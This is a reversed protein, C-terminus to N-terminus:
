LLDAGLEAIESRETKELEIHAYLNEGKFKKIINSFGSSYKDLTLKDIQSLDGTFVIKSGHGVRTIITKVELPSLNQAEDVLIFQNQLSRGRIYSLPAVEFLNNDEILKQLKTNTKSKGNKGGNISSVIELNDIIPTIWPAMKEEIGGPLFGIDAGVPIVPRTIVIKEYKNERIIKQLGVAISLITKGSGAKGSITVLKINDDLLANLAYTQEINLGKIGLALPKSDVRFITQDKYQGIFPQNNGDEDEFRLFENNSLGDNCLMPISADKHKLMQGIELGNLIMKSYGLYNPIAHDIDYDSSNIELADAKIRLNVDKTILVIPNKKNEKSLSLVTSLLKNDVSKIDLMINEPSNNIDIFPIVFLKGDKIEEDIYVGNKLNGNSRLGDLYRIASRANHGLIGKHTKFKDLEELVQFIIIIDSSTFHKFCTPDHLIVNTDLVITNM